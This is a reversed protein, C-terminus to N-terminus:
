ARDQRVPHKRSWRRGDGNGDQDHLIAQAILGNVAQGLERGFQLAPFAARLDLLFAREVKRENSASDLAEKFLGHFERTIFKEPVDPLQTEIRSRLEKEASEWCSCVVDLTRPIQLITM